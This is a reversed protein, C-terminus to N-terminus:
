NKRMRSFFNAISARYEYVGYGLALMAIVGLVAFSVSRKTDVAQDLESSPTTTSAGAVKRCRNTEPNREQGDACPKLATASAAKKCRNTAPNRIQGPSCPKLSTIASATSKCRNTEPNRYQGPECPKLGGTVTLSKCRNTAPNRYKGPPCAGLSEQSNTSAKAEALSIVNAGNPTPRNTEQWIGNILAWAIDDGLEGPYAVAEETTPTIFEVVAGSANPLVIGYLSTYGPLIVGSLNKVASGIRVSCGVLSIATYTGNFLEIYEAGTDTGAPNPLIESLSVGICAEAPSVVVPVCESDILEYGLPIEAQVGELSPCIDIISEDPENIVREADTFDAKNNNTDQPKLETDVVRWITKASAPIPAYDHEKCAGKSSENGWGVIDSADASNSLRLSGGVNDNMAFEVIVSATAKVAGALETIKLNASSDQLKWNKANCDSIKAAPKAYELTWGSLNVEDASQNYIEVYETPEGAVTGGLKIRNIILPTAKEQATLPAIPVIMGILLSLSALFGFVRVKM